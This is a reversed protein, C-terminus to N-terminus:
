QRCFKVDSFQKDNAPVIQERQLQVLQRKVLGDVLLNAEGVFQEGGAGREASLRVCEGIQQVIELTQM